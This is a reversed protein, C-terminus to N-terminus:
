LKGNEEISMFAELSEKSECIYQKLGNLEEVTNAATSILDSRHLNRDLTDTIKGVQTEILDLLEHMYPVTKDDDDEEDIIEIGDAEHVIPNHANFEASAEGEKVRKLELQTQSDDDDVTDVFSEIVSVDSHIDEIDTLNILTSLSELSKIIDETNTNDGLFISKTFKIEVDDYVDEHFPISRHFGVSRSPPTYSTTSPTYVTKLPNCDIKVKDIIVGDKVSYLTDEKVEEVDICDIAELSEKTSSIYMSTVESGSETDWGYFLPRGKKRFMYITESKEKETHVIKSWLLAFNDTGMDELISYGKEALGKFILQSDVDWDTHKWGYKEMLETTNFVVGNHCGVITYSKDPSKYAFPHSNDVNVVGSTKQRTHGIFTEINNPFVFMPLLKERADGLFKFIKKELPTSTRRNNLYMGCSDKGREANYALLLKIKYISAGTDGSYGTIGCM